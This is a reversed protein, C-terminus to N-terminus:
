AEECTHVHWSALAGAPRGWPAREEEEALEGGMRAEKTGGWGPKM